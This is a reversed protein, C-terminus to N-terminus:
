NECGIKAKGWSNNNLYHLDETNCLGWSEDSLIRGSLTTAMLLANLQQFVKKEKDAEEKLM